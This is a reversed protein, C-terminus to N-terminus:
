YDAYLEDTDQRTLEIGIYSDRGVRNLYQRGFTSKDLAEKIM